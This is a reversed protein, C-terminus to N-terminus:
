NSTTKLGPTNTCQQNEGSCPEDLCEDIDRCRKADVSDYGSNCNCSFTGLENICVSIEADCWDTGDLCEDDDECEYGDGSFGTDCACTYGVPADNCTAYESCEHTDDECENM